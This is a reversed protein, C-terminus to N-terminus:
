KGGASEEIIDITRPRIYARRGDSLELVMWKEFYDGASSVLDGGDGKKPKGVFGLLKVHKYTRPEKGEQACTVDYRKSVDLVFAREPIQQTAAPVPETRPAKEEKGRGCSVALALAAGVLAILGPRM